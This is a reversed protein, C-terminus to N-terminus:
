AESRTAQEAGLGVTVPTTVPVKEDTGKSVRYVVALALV